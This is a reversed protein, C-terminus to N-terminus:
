HKKSKDYLQQRVMEAEQTIVDMSLDDTKFVRLLESLKSYLGEKELEKTLKIKEKRPLQRVLEM